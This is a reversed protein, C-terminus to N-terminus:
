SARANSLSSPPPPAAVHRVSIQASFVCLLCCAVSLFVHTTHKLVHLFMHASFPTNPNNTNKREPLWTICSKDYYEDTFRPTM